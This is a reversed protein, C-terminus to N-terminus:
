EFLNLQRNNNTRKSRSMVTRGGYKWSDSKEKEIVTAFNTNSEFNKEAMLAHFHLRKIADNKENQSLKGKELADKLENITKDYIKTPVPFPHGDKGGHAFSFRAPDSFRSPTGHILESILVMSQLTRPGLGQLLLFSEFNLMDEEQALALVAGLRKLDVDTKRVDHHRPMVLKKVDTLLKTPDEKTLDLVSKRTLNAEKATLNLIMGQNEGYIFTHPEEVFSPLQISHWHYRRAMGSKENMGQQIVAWEGDDTVIFNHLYLQFGDQIANNDVKASLKSAYVLKNGDLGTIDAVRLLENPTQRSFKGKGGCVYVGLEKAIPNVSKRLAAMVSTTIGSSHWDMGLACGFSQFWFPDSLRKLVESKGYNAIIHEVIVWSLKTMRQTLWPPVRGGHLPLDATGSRSFYLKPM